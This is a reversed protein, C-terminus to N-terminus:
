IKTPIIIMHNINAGIGAGRYSLDNKEGEKSGFTGM